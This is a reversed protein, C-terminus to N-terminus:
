LDATLIPLYVTFTTGKGPKSSVEIRGGHQEVIGYSTSLGLGTGTGMKKTTFFPDFIKPLDEEPIGEGDDQVEFCFIKNDDQRTSARISLNGGKEMAQVANIILNILVQQIRHADIIVQIDPIDVNYNVNTPVEGKILLISNHVLDKFNVPKPNFTRKKSFELLAKVTDRAREIEKEADLRLTKKHELDAGELEELLIQVSTSINNLPNNLEHAVGSTLTGLSALKETQILQESRKSLENLMINLSNVLSEFEDGTSVVPIKRYDGNTIKNVADEIAKLPRNVNVILFFTALVFLIFIAAMALLHYFESKEILNHVYKRDQQALEELMVTIKRGLHKIMEHHKRIESSSEITSTFNSKLNQRNLLETFYSEYQILDTLIEELNKQLAYKAYRDLINRINEEANSVYFLVKKVHEIKIFHTREFYLFYNKEYRRVELIANFLDKKREVVQLKKDLTIHISYSLTLIILSIIMLVPFHLIVKRKFSIKM